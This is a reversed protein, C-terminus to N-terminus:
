LPAKLLRKLAKLSITLSSRHLMRHCNACVLSLDAMTTVVDEAVSSLPNRHHAEIYGHGHSGYVHSFDFECVECALRGHERLRQAKLKKALKASKRERSLHERLIKRGEVVGELLDELSQDHSLDVDAEAEAHRWGSYPAALTVVTFDLARLLSGAADPSSEGGSLEGSRLARKFGEIHRFAVAAIPKSDYERGEHLLRYRRSKHFGYHSRFAEEGMERCEAMAAEVAEVTM